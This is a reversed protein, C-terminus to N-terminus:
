LPKLKPQSKYLSVVLGSEPSIMGVPDQNEHHAVLVHRPMLHECKMGVATWAHFLHEYDEDRVVVATKRAYKRSVVRKVILPTEAGQETEVVDGINLKDTIPLNDIRVLNGELRYGWGTEDWDFRVKVANDSM